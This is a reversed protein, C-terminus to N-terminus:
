FSSIECGYFALGAIEYGGKPRKPTVDVFVTGNGPLASTAFVFHGDGGQHVLTPGGVGNKGNMKANFILPFQVPYMRCDFAYHKGAVGQVEISM